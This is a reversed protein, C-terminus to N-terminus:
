SSRRSCSIAIWELIRAQYAVTWPTVFFQVWSLSNVKVKRLLSAPAGPPVTQSCCDRFTRTGTDPEGRRGVGKKLWRGGRGRRGGGMGEAWRLGWRRLASPKEPLALLPSM